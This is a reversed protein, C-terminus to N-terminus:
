LTKGTASTVLPGKVKPLHWNPSAIREYFKMVQLPNKEKRVDLTVITTVFFYKQFTCTYFEENTALIHLSGGGGVKM